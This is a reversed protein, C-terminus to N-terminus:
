KPASLVQLADLVGQLIFAAALADIKKSRKQRSLDAEIMHREVAATSLREDHLVIAVDQYKMADSVFQRVSQCRPGETGNMNLPYGVIWACVSNNKHIEMLTALDQKLKTRKVVLLPSSLFWSTDSVAVGITTTGLDLAMLRYNKKKMNLLDPPTLLPM